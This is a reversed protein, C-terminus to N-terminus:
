PWQAQGSPSDPQGAITNQQPPGAAKKVWTVLVHPDAIGERKETLEGAQKVM